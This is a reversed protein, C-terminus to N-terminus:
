ARYPSVRRCCSFRSHRFYHAHTPKSQADPARPKPPNAEKRYRARDTEVRLSLCRDIIPRVGAGAKPLWRWGKNRLSALADASMRVLLDLSHLFLRGFRLSRQDDRDRNSLLLHSNVIGVSQKRFRGDGGAHGTMRCRHTDEADDLLVFKMMGVDVAARRHGKHLPDGPGANGDVCADQGAMRSRVSTDAHRHGKGDLHPIPRLHARAHDDSGAVDRWGAERMWEERGQLDLGLRGRRPFRVGSAFRLHRYCTAPLWAM